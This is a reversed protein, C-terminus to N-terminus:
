ELSGQKHAALEAAQEATVSIRNFWTDITVDEHGVRMEDWEAEKRLSAAIAGMRVAVSSLM